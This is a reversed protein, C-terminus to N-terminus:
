VRPRNPGYFPFNGHQQCLVECVARHGVDRRVRPLHPLPSLGAAPHPDDRVPPAHFHDGGMDAADGARVRFVSGLGYALYARVKEQTKIRM